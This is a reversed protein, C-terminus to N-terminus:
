NPDFVVKRMKLCYSIKLYCPIAIQYSINHLRYIPPYNFTKPKRYNLHCLADAQLQHNNSSFSYDNLRRGLSFNENLMWEDECRRKRKKKPSVEICSKAQCELCPTMKRPNIYGLMQLSATSGAHFLSVLNQVGLGLSSLKRM